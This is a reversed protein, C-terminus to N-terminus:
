GDQEFRQRAIRATEDASHLRAVWWEYQKLDEGEVVKVLDRALHEVVRFKVADPLCDLEAPSLTRHKAYGDVVAQIREADPQDDDEPHAASLLFGLDLLATGRGAGGWDIVRTHGTSSIIMNGLHFDNHVLVNPLSDCVEMERLAKDIWEYTKQWEAPLKGRVQDLHGRAMDRQQAMTREAVPLPDFEGAKFQLTHLEGLMEGARVLMDVGQGAERRGVHTTLIMRWGEVEVVARGDEARILREAPYEAEELLTLVRALADPNARTNEPPFVQLAYRAEIERKVVYVEKSHESGAFAPELTVNGLNYHQQIWDFLRDKHDL